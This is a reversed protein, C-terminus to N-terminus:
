LNTAGGDFGPHIRIGFLGQRERPLLLTRHGVTLIQSTLELRDLPRCVNKFALKTLREHQIKLIKGTSFRICRGRQPVRTTERQSGPPAQM